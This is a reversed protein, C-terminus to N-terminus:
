QAGSAQRVVPWQREPGGGLNRAGLSGGCRCLVLYSAVFGKSPCSRFRTLTQGFRTRGAHDFRGCLQARLSGGVEGGTTTDRRLRSADALRLRLTAGRLRLKRAGRRVETRDLDAAADVPM